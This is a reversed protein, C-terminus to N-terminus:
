YDIRRPGNEVGKLRLFQEALETLVSEHVPFREPPGAHDDVVDVITGLRASIFESIFGEDVHGSGFRFVTPAYIGNLREVDEGKTIGHVLHGPARLLFRFANVQHHDGAWVYIM